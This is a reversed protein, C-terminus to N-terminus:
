PRATGQRRVRLWETYQQVQEPKRLRQALDLAAEVTRVADAPQNLQDYATALPLVAGFEEPRLERARRLAAAAEHPHGCRLEAIGLNTAADTFKPNMDLARRFYPVAQEPRELAALALGMNQVPEASDPELQIARELYPIAEEARGALTLAFGLNNNPGSSEPDLDLVYRFQGVADQPRHAALLAFGLHVYSKASDPKLRVAAEFHPIAERSRGLAVLAMGVNNQVYESDPSYQLADQWITLPAAYAHLRQTSVATYAVALLGVPICVAFLAQTDIPNPGRRGEREGVIKQAARYAAVVALTVLAALPLYMRREAAVETIIPVLLTPSLIAIVSALVFGTATGRGALVATVVALAMAPLLYPAAASLSEFYPFQYHIVLPWPWVSLKLYLLLVRTQTLWYHYATLDHGFGTSETRPGGINLALLPIWSLCLGVYLPWSERLAERFSGRLFTREFLLIVLPASVIVEKSAVGAICAVTALSMWGARFRRDTATWYRLSAYIALLYCFAMLLETRQTIYEVAETLLPHIAWLLATIFGLAGAVQSFRGRFYDTLLTRRVISWILLASAFHLGLNVLRYGFPADGGIAYNLAFTLNVLPRGATSSQRAPRFPGPESETGVLPWLQKVSKSTVITSTDDFIMPASMSRAYVALICGLIALMGGATRVAPRQWASRM